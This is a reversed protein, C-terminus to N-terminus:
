ASRTVLNLGVLVGETDSLDGIINRVPRPLKRVLTPIAVIQDLRARQPKKIVDIVEIRYKGKLRQECILRLNDFAMLARTTRGAIYLRLVWAARKPKATLGTRSRSKLLTRNDNV